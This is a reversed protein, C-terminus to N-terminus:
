NEVPVSVTAELNNEISEDEPTKPISEEDPTNSISEEDSLEDAEKTIIDADRLEGFNAAKIFFLTGAILTVASSVLLGVGHPAPESWPQIIIYASIFQLTSLFYLLYSIQHRSLITPIHAGVPAGVVVVPICVSLFKWLTEAEGPDYAGGIPILRCLMGVFANTAMLVVSTPTAVKESVRYYLTLLSFSAMDLGSGAISSCIGGIVGIAVLSAIRKRKARMVKRNDLEISSLCVDANDGTPVDVTKKMHRKYEIIFEDSEKSSNYVKREKRVNLRFLAVSFSLWLSVFMLKTYSPLLFPAVGVLGVLLGITGGVSCWILAEYDLPVGLFFIIVSAATMGFSQIGLSFDRALRPPVGLALTMVPFAVAGGGESTAGAVLSGFVMTISMHYYYGIYPTKEVFRGFHADPDRFAWILWCIEVCITVIWKFNSNFFRRLPSPKKEDVVQCM